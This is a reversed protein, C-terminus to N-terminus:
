ENGRDEPMEAPLPIHVRLVTGEGPKSETAFRGSLHTVREEMGLLGMGKEREPDFGVGDDQVIVSLGDGDRQVVVRVEMAGSHKACNNLAEQVVRYICTRHADPLDETIEDAVMKVRLGSRRTVERAQWRLAAVLGLDDLMSPRLLLAMNRVMGVTREAMHRVSALSEIRGEKDTAAEVRGLEVLMASMAQGVEDHLERSLNRREEEQASVLQSSLARLELRAAEVEEFRTASEGELRKVRRISGIALLIAFSLALVSVTAMRRGTQTQVERIQVEGSDLDRDNIATIQESLQVVATRFPLLVDHLFREGKSEREASNWQLAPTMAGWFSEVRHRLDAFGPRESDPLNQQYLDLIHGIRRRLTELEAGQRRADASDREMVFDHGVATSRYIDGRLQDLLADRVRYQERLAQTTVAAHRLSRIADASLLALLLLLGSFGAWLTHSRASLFRDM